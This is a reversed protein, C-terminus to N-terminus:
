ISIEYSILANEKSSILANLVRFPLKVKKLFDKTKVLIKKSSYPKIEIMKSNEHLSYNGLYELKIPISSHNKLIIEALVTKSKYGNSSFTLNSYIIPILNKKSGILLDNFWVFTKKNLLGALIHDESKSESIVFTIPRHGGQSINFEWNTLGHIDSTGLVTLDNELALEFAEESFTNENVVEIGHILKNKILYVHYPDLRAIGDKRQRIYNPHNWFVFAGQKNAEIIGTLSDNHLIKNADKIFVANIHGPAMSRTIEAGNIILLDSKKSRHSRAIEFSRNRDPNPIDKAHPQYELHDTIAILDLLEKEAEDVRIDPWVSGDSFVTHIHLDTSILYKGDPAKFFSKINQSYSQFSYLSGLIILIFKKNLLAM